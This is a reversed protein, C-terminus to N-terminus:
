AWDWDEVKSTLMKSPGKAAQPNSDWDPALRDLSLGQKLSQNIADIEGYAKTKKDRELLYDTLSFSTRSVAAAKKTPVVNVITTGGVEQSSPDSKGNIIAKIVLTNNKTSKDDQLQSQSQSQSTASSTANILKLGRPPRQDKVIHKVHSMAMSRGGVGKVSLDESTNLSEACRLIYEKIAEHPVRRKTAVIQLAVKFQEFDIVSSGPYRVNAFIVAIDREKYNGHCLKTLRNFKRWRTSDMGIVRVRVGLFTRSDLDCFIRFARELSIKETGKSESDVM